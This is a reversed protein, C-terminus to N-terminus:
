SSAKFPLKRNQKLEEPGEVMFLHGGATNQNFVIVGHHSLYYCFYVHQVCNVTKTLYIKVPM